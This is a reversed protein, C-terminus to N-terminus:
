FRSLVVGAAVLAAAALRTPTVAAVALGFLGTADIVLAACMQGLILATITTLAGLVPIAWLVSWVYFAGLAGGILLVKPATVVGALAGVEGRLLLVIALTLFGIAFSVAAAGVGSGLSRGLAANIPSQMAVAVGALCVILLPLIPTQM